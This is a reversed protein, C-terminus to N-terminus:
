PRHTEPRGVHHGHVHHIRRSGRHHRRRQRRLTRGARTKEGTPVHFPRLFEVRRRCAVSAVVRQPPRGVAHKPVPVVHHDRDRGRIGPSDVHPDHHRPRQLGAPIAERHSRTHPVSRAVGQRHRVHPFEGHCVDLSEHHLSKGIVTERARRGQTGEPSLIPGEEEPRAKRDPVVRMPNRLAVQIPVAMRVQHHGVSGATRLQCHIRPVPIAGKPQGSRQRRPAKPHGHRNPVQVPIVVQVHHRRVMPRMTDANQLVEAVQIKGLRHRIGHPVMWAVQPKPVQIPVSNGLDHHRDLPLVEQHHQLAIALRAPIHPRIVGIAPIGPRHRQPVQVPVAALINHRRAMLARPQLYQQVVPISRKLGGARERQGAALDIDGDLVHVAVPAHIDHGQVVVTGADPYQATVPRTSKSPWGQECPQAPPRIVKGHRVVVPVAVAVHRHRPVTRRLEANEGVPAPAVKPRRRDVARCPIGDREDRTIPVLISHLVDCRGVVGATTSADPQPLPRDPHHLPRRTKRRDHPTAAQARVVGVHVVVAERRPRPVQEHHADLGHSARGCALEVIPHVIGGPVVDRIKVRGRVVSPTLLPRHSQAPIAGVEQPDRVIVVVPALVTDPHVQEPTPQLGLPVRLRIVTRSRGRAQRERQLASLQHRAHRSGDARPIARVMESQAIQGLPRGHTQSQLRNRPGGQCSSQGQHPRIPRLHRHARLSSRGQHMLHPRATPQQQGPHRGISAGPNLPLIHQAQGHRILPRGRNGRHVQGGFPGGRRSQHPCELRREAFVHSGRRDVPSRIDLHARGHVLHEAVGVVRDIRDRAHAIRAAPLRGELDCVPRQLRTPVLDRQPGAQRVAGPVRHRRAVHPAELHKWQWAENRLVPGVIARISRRRHSRRATRIAGPRQGRRQTGPRIRVVDARTVEVPVPARVQDDGVDIGAVEANPVPIPVAREGCGVREGALGSRDAHDHAVHVAIPARVHHRHVMVRVRRGDVTAVSAPGKDRGLGDRHAHVWSVDPQAVQVPVTPRFDQHGVLATAEDRYQLRIPRAAEGPLVQPNAKPCPRYRRAVEVAIAPHVHHGHPRRSQRHELPARTAKCQLGQSRHRSLRSVHGQHVQIAIAVEVRGHQVPGAPAKGDEAVVGTCKRSHRFVHPPKSGLRIVQRRRVQIPVAVRVKRHRDITGALPRTPHVIARAHHTGQNRHPGLAVRNADHCAVPIAVADAVHRRRVMGPAAYGDPEAVPCGQQGLARRPQQRAKRAPPQRVRRVVVKIPEARARTVHQRHRHLRLAVGRCALQVVAHVTGGPFVDSVEVGVRVVSPALRGRHRQHLAAAVRDKRPVIIVITAFVPKADRQRTAAHLRLALGVVRRARGVFDDQAGGAAPRGPADGAVETLVLAHHAVKIPHSRHALSLRQLDRPSRDRHALHSGAHDHTPGRTLHHAAAIRRRCQPDHRRRALPPRMGDLDQRGDRPARRRCSGVEPEEPVGLHPNGEIHRFVGHRHREPEQGERGVGAQELHTCRPIVSVNVQAAAVDERANVVVLDNARGAQVEAVAAPM